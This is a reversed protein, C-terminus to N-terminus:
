PASASRSRSTAAMVIAGSGMMRTNPNARFRRVHHGHSHRFRDPILREFPEGILEDRAYGFLRDTQANAFEITGDSGVVLMADPAADLLQRYREETGGDRDPDGPM